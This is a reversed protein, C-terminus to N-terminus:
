KVSTRLDKFWETLVPLMFESTKLIPNFFISNEQTEKSVLADNINVKQFLSLVVGLLLTTKLVAFFAGGLKNLWGLFLTSAIKSFVKALLHIAIVVLLLTVIFAAVKATKSDGIFGGVIYSFKVAIYIGVFFSILSALEVFLGNRLGKFATFGLLAAFIIDIFGM